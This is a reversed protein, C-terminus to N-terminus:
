RVPLYPNLVARLHDRQEDSLPGYNRAWAAAVDADTASIGLRQCQDRSLLPAHESSTFTDMATM